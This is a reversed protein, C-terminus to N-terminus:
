ETLRGTDALHISLIKDLRDNLLDGHEGYHIESHCTPCLAAVRNPHDAGGDSLEDIHHVELYPEGTKSVFAAETGCYECNGDARLRAFKQVAKSRSYSSQHASTVIDTKGSTAADIASKWAEALTQNPSDTHPNETDLNKSTVEATHPQKAEVLDDDSLETQNEPEKQDTHAGNIKKTTNAHDGSQSQKESSHNQRCGATSDVLHVNEIYDEVSDPVIILHESSEIIVKDVWDLVSELNYDTLQWGGSTLARVTTSLNDQIENRLAMQQKHEDTRELKIVSNLTRLSSEIAKVDSHFPSDALESETEWSKLRAKCFDIAEDIDTEELLKLSLAYIELSQALGTEEATNAVETAYIFQETADNIQAQALYKLGSQAHKGYECIVSETTSAGMFIGTVFGETFGTVRFEIPYGPLHRVGEIKIPYGNQISLYPESEARSFTETLVQDTVVPSHEGRSAVSVRIGDTLVEAVGLRLENVTEPLSDPTIIPLHPYEPAKEGVVTIEDGLNPRSKQSLDSVTGQIRDSKIQTVNIKLKTGPNASTRPIEVYNSCYSGVIQNYGVRLVDVVIEDGISIASAVSKTIPKGILVKGYEDIIEVVVESGHTVLDSLVVITWPGKYGIGYRYDSILIHVYTSDHDIKTPSSRHEIGLLDRLPILDIRRELEDIHKRFQSRYSNSWLQPTLCIGMSGYRAHITWEGESSKPIKGVNQEEDGGIPEIMANNSASFRQIRGIQVHKHPIIGSGAKVLEEDQTELQTNSSAGQTGYENRISTEVLLESQLEETQNPHQRIYEALSDREEDTIAELSSNAQKTTGDSNVEGPNESKFYLDGLTRLSRCIGWPIESEDGANPVSYGITALFEVADLTVQYTSPRSNEPHPTWLIITGEETSKNRLTAM